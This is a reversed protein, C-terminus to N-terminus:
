PPDFGDRFIIVEPVQREVAGMNIRSNAARPLGRQDKTQEIPPTPGANLVPSTAAPLMTLTPGGNVTLQGLQPDVGFINKSGTITTGNTNTVLSYRLRFTGAMDQTYSKSSNNAVISSFINPQGAGLIGNSYFYATSNGSITSYGISEGDGTAADFIGIGGGNHYAFNRYFTSNIIKTSSSVTHLALGGGGYGSGAFSTLTNGSILSQSIYVTNARKVDIGAGFYYASNGSVSSRSMTLAATPSSANGDTVFIGGGDGSASNGSIM